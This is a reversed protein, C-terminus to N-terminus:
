CNESEYNLLIETKEEDNMDTSLGFFEYKGFFLYTNSQEDYEYITKYQDDFRFREKTKNM